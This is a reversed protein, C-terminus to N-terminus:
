APNSCSNAQGYPSFFFAPNDEFDSELASLIDIFEARGETGSVGSASVLIRYKIWTAVSEPYEIQVVVIGSSNTRNSGVVSIAVDSKRPDLQRNQNFDEIGGPGSGGSTELVGNRNADENLCGKNSGDDTDIPNQTSGNGQRCEGTTSPVLDPDDPCIQGVGPAAWSGKYYRLLDVSPTVEVDPMAQGSANVVMVVFKKIYTLGGAGNEITNNTGITVSLPEAAVTLTTLAFSPCAGNAISADTPGYCARVSVGNTPSSRTGPIYRATAVGNQNSYVTTTGSSFAGGISNTDGNLDFRVRVNQVPANNAGLFLARIESFNSSASTNVSVVSPNATVSASQIAQTVDPVVGGGGGAGQVTISLNVPALGAASARLTYVGPAAPATYSYTFSGDLATVGQSTGFGTGSLSITQGAIPSANSDSLVFQVQNGTSSVEPVAPLPTAVLQGGTVLFSATRTLTGSRVTVTIARNTKDAGIGVTATVRGTADTATGTPLVVGGSDASVLVPIGEVANRNADVATVTAVVTDTGSNTVSGKSLVLALDAAVPATPDGGPLEDSGGSSSGSSGGGFPSTGPDGGGVGCASLGAALVAIWLWQLAKSMYEGLYFPRWM